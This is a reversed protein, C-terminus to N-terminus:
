IHHGKDMNQWKSRSRAFNTKEPLGYLGHATLWADYPPIYTWRQNLKTAAPNSLTLTGPITERNQHLWDSIVNTRHPYGGYDFLLWRILQPVNFDAHYIKEPQQLLLLVAQWTFPKVFDVKTDETIKWGDLPIKRGSYTADYVLGISLKDPRHILAVHPRTDNRGHVFIINERDIDGEEKTERLMADWPDPDSMKVGGALLGWTEPLGQLVGHRTLFLRNSRGHTLLLAVSLSAPDRDPSLM